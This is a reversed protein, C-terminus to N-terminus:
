LLFNGFINVTDELSTFSRETGRIADELFPSLPITRTTPPLVIYWPAGKSAEIAARLDPVSRTYVAIGRDFITGTLDAEAFIIANGKGSPLNVTPDALLIKDVVGFFGSVAAIPIPILIAFGSANSANILPSLLSPIFNSNSADARIGSTNCSIDPVPVM